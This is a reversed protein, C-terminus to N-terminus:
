CLFSKIYALTWHTFVMSEMPAIIKNSGFLLNNCLLGEILECWWQVIPATNELLQHPNGTNQAGTIIRVIGTVLWAAM